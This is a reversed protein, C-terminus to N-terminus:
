RDLELVVPLHHFEGSQELVKFVTDAGVAKSVMVMDGDLEFPLEAKRLCEAIKQEFTM